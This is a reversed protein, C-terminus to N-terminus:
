FLCTVKSESAFTGTRKLACCRSFYLEGRSAALQIAAMLHRQYWTLSIQSDSVVSSVFKWRRYGEKWFEFWIADLTSRLRMNESRIREVEAINWSVNLSKPGCPQASSLGSNIKGAKEKVSTSKATWNQKRQLTEKWPFGNSDLKVTAYQNKVLWLEKNRAIAEHAVKKNKGCKSRLDIVPWVCPLM